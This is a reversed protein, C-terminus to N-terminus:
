KMKPRGTAFFMLDITKLAPRGLYKQSYVIFASFDDTDTSDKSNSQLQASNGGAGAM